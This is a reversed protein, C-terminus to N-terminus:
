YLIVIAACACAGSTPICHTQLNCDHSICPCFGLVLVGEHMFLQASVSHATLEVSTYMLTMHFSVRVTELVRMIDGSFVQGLMHGIIIIRCLM